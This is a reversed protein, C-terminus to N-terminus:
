LDYMISFKLGLLSNLSPRYGLRPHPFRWDRANIDTVGFETRIELMASLRDDLRQQAGWGGVIGIDINRYLDRIANPQTIDDANPNKETMAQVFTVEFGRRIFQLDASQLYAAYLGVNFFYKLCKNKDTYVKKFYFPVKIYNLNQNKLFLYTTDLEKWGGYKQGQTSYQVEAGIFTSKQKSLLWEIQMGASVGPTLYYDNLGSGYNHEFNVSSNMLMLSLGGQNPVFISGQGYMMQGSMFLVFCLISLRLTFKKM